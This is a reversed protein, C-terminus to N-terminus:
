LNSFLQFLLLILFRLRGLILRCLLLTGISRMRNLALSPDEGLTERSYLGLGLRLHIFM